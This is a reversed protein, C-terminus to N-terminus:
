FPPMLSSSFFRGRAQTPQTNSVTKTSYGSEANSVSIGDSILNHM